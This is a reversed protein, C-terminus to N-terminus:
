KRKRKKINEVPKVLDSLSSIDKGIPMNKSIKYSIDYYYDRNQLYYIDHENAYNFTFQSWSNLQRLWDHYFVGWDLLNDFFRKNEVKNNYWPQHKLWKNIQIGRISQDYLYPKVIFNLMSSFDNIIRFQELNYLGVIDNYKFNYSKEIDKKESNLVSYANYQTKDSPANPQIAAIAGFLEFIHLNNKQKPGGKSFVDIYDQTDTTGIIYANDFTNEIEEKYINLTIKSAVYDLDNNLLNGVRQTSPERLRFYPLMMISNVSINSAIKEKFYKGIEVIGSAGTGGFLSGCIVINYDENTINEIKRIIYVLNNRVNVTEEDEDDEIETDLELELNSILSKILPAGMNARKKFGTKIEDYLQSKSFMSNIIDEYLESDSSKPDEGLSKRYNQGEKDPQLLIKNKYEAEALRIDRETLPYPKFNPFESKFFWENKENPAQTSKLRHYKVIANLCREVNGNPRDQDIIIPYIYDPANGSVALHIISELIKTGTGGIGVIVLNEAM